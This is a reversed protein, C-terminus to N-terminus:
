IVEVEGMLSKTPIMFYIDLLRTLTNPKEDSKSISRFDKINESKFVPRTLILKSKLVNHAFETTMQKRTYLVVKNNITNAEVINRYYLPNIIEM